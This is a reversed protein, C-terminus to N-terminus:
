KLVEVRSIQLSVEREKRVVSLVMAEFVLGLELLM